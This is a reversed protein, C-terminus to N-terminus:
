LNLYGVRLWVVSAQWHRGCYSCHRVTRGPYWLLIWPWYGAREFMAVAISRAGGVIDVQCDSLM